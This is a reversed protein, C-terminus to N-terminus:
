EGWLITKVGLEKGAIIIRNNVKRMNKYNLFMGFNGGEDCYTSTTWSVGAAHFMVAYGMMTDTNAFNDASPAVLLIDAGYEDVPLRIGQGPFIEELEDELFQSSDAWAEPWIGLNNGTQYVKNVVETVYKTGLGIRALIERAGMTIVATDIGYPCFTACRRCESCQYFYIYMEKLLKESLEACDPSNPNLKGMPTFYRRYVRRLLEARAVPMNKPDGTGLFYHCKDACNGCRVCADLMVRLEKYHNLLERFIKLFEEKWNPILSTPLDIGMMDSIRAPYSELHRSADDELKPVAYPTHYYPMKCQFNPKPNLLNDNGYLKLPFGNDSDSM